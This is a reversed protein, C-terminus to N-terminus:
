QIVHPRQVNLPQNLHCLICSISVSRSYTNVYRYMLRQRDPTLGVGIWKNPKPTTADAVQDAAGSALYEHICQKIQEATFNSKLTVKVDQEWNSNSASVRCVVPVDVIPGVHPKRANHSMKNAEADSIVNRPTSFTYLPLVYSNGRSDYVLSLDGNPARLDSADLVTQAIDRNNELLAECALRLNQWVTQHGESRSEWFTQRKLALQTQSVPGGEMDYPTPVALGGRRGGLATPM